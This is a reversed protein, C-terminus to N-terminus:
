EILNGRKRERKCRLRCRGGKKGGGDVFFSYSFSREEGRKGKRLNLALKKRRKVM